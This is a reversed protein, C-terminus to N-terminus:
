VQIDRRGYILVQNSAGHMHGWLVRYTEIMEKM